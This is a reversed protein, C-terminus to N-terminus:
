MKWEPVSYLNEYAEKTLPIFEVVNVIVHENTKVSFRCNQAKTVGSSAIQSLSAAGDWYHIRRVNNAKVILGSLTEKKETIEGIFVGAAYSRIVYAQKSTKTKKTTKKTVNNTKKISM